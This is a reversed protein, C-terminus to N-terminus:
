SLSGNATIIVSKSGKGFTRKSKRIYAAPHRTTSM